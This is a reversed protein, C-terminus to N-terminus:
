TTRRGRESRSRRRSAAMLSLAVLFCLGALMLFGAGGPLTTEAGVTSTPPLTPKPTVPVVSHPGAATPAPPLPTPSPSAPAATPTVVPMSTPLATQAPLVPTPAPGVTNALGASCNLWSGGGYNSNNCQNVTVALSATTTGSAICNFDEQGGGYSSGNCQTITAGSTTAPFPNCGTTVPASGVCQNVTAASVTQPTVGVFDNTVAVSCELVNGGGYGVGNCQYVRTVLTALNQQDTTCTLFSPDLRGSAPGRCETVRIVSSGSAAGTVPDIATITNTVTSTCRIMTGAGTDESPDTTPDGCYTTPATALPAASAPSTTALSAAGLLAFAFLGAFLFAVPRRM